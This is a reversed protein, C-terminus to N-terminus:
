LHLINIYKLSMIIVRVASICQALFHLTIGKVNKSLM